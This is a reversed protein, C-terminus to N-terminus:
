VTSPQGQNKRCTYYDFLWNLLIIVFCLTWGIGIMTILNSVRDEVNKLSKGVAIFSVPTSGTALIGTALRINRRPQWTIWDEKHIKVFNIVSLPIQPLKGDIVANSQLPLGNEDYSAIFVSLSKQLDITDKQFYMDISKGKQLQEKINYALQMQPDNAGSRYNQQVAVYIVGLIITIIAIYSIHQITKM